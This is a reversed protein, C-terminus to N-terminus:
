FLLGVVTIGATGLAFMAVVAIRLHRAAGRRPLVWALTALILALAGTTLDVSDHQALGIKFLLVGFVTAALATRDWALRTRAAADVPSTM